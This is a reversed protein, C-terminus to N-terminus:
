LHCLFQFICHTYLILFIPIIIGGFSKKWKNLGIADKNYDKIPTTYGGFDYITMGNKKAWKISDWILLAHALGAMTKKEPIYRKSAAYLARLTKGKLRTIFLEGALVEGEKSKAIFLYETKSSVVISPLGLYRTRLANVMEEYEEQCTNMEITIGRKEARKIDSRRKRKINKWIVDLPQKLDIIVTHGVM